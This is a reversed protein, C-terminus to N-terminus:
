EKGLRNYRQEWLIDIDKKHEEKDSYLFEIYDAKKAWEENPRAFERLLVYKENITNLRANDHAIICTLFISTLWVCFMVIKFWWKVYRDVFFRRIYYWPLLFFLYGSVGKLSTPREPKILSTANTHGKEIVTTVAAEVVNKDIVTVAPAAPKEKIQVLETRYDELLTKLQEIASEEGDGAIKVQHSKMYSDMAGAVSKTLKDSDAACERNCSVPSSLLEHAEQVNKKNITNQIEDLKNYIDEFSYVQEDKLPTNKKKAM